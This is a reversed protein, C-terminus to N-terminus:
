IINTKFPSKTRFCLSIWGSVSGCRWRLIKKTVGLNFLLRLCIHTYIIYIIYMYIYKLYPFAGLPPHHPHLNTTNEGWKKTKSVDTGGQFRWSLGTRKPMMSKKGKLKSAAPTPATQQHPDQINGHPNGLISTGGFWGNYQSKGNYVM